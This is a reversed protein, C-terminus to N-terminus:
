KRTCFILFPVFTKYLSYQREPSQVTMLFFVCYSCVISNSFCKNCSNQCRQLFFTTKETSNRTNKKHPVSFAPLSLKEHMKAAYRALSTAAAAGDSVATVVQRLEKECVDGAGYVGDINTQQQRNTQLHGSESLTLKEQFLSTEPTFGVFVFIGFTDRQPADYRTEKGTEKDQFIAYRLMSDGGVKQIETHYKVQINPHRIVQEAIAKNCSFQKSRIFITVHKAYKTLFVAEQAASNGGGVVFVNKGMFFEGDCTACYAVGHGRYEAKGQFGATKPTAGTAFIVGLTRYVNQKMQFKKVNGDLEVKTVKSSLFEAGFNEAQKRMTETLANGDTCLIGPYNVVNTTIAIQGGIREQEIVLVRYKSRALYIAAALEAPGAGVIIGDYFNQEAMM